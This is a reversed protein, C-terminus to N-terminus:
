SIIVVVFKGRCMSSQVMKTLQKLVRSGIGMNHKKGCGAYGHSICYAKFPIVSKKEAVIGLAKQNTSARDLMTARWKTVDLDYEAMAELIHQAIAEGDLSEAYLKLHIM